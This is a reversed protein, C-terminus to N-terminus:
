AHEEHWSGDQEVFRATQAQAEDREIAEQIKHIIEQQDEAPLLGFVFLFRILRDVPGSIRSEGKEYRAITQGDVGLDDALENQTMNMERRLFRFERPSLAKKTSIVHLAIALHLNDVNEIAVGEGYETEVHKFGNLLVVDDLGSIKYVYPEKAHDNGDIFFERTM